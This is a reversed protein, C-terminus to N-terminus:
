NNAYLKTLNTLSSISKDTINKTFRCKLEELNTLSMIGLDSLTTVDECNLSILNTLNNLNYISSNAECNLKKLLTLNNINANSIYSDGSIDLSTLNTLKSICTIQNNNSICLDKLNTLFNIEFSVYGEAILKTLRTLNRLDMNLQTESINLEVLNTLKLLGDSNMGSIEADLRTLNTLFSIEVHKYRCSIDLDVLKQLRPIIYDGSSAYLKRLNTSFVDNLNDCGDAILEILNSLPRVDSEFIATTNVCILKKLNTFSRIDIINEKINSIDLVQLKSCRSYIKVSEDYM